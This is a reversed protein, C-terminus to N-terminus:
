VICSDEMGDRPFRSINEQLVDLWDGKQLKFDELRM